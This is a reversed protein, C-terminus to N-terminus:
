RSEGKNVKEEIIRVIKEAAHGDGFLPPREDPWWRTAVAEIISAEDLDTVRNWGAQVTETWETEPRLTVCPVGHFYAEKQVGGSDTLIMFASRELAAMELFGQPELLTVNMPTTLGFEALRARTRPHLPLVIRRDLAAFIRLVSALRDADDVTYPRHLTALLYAGAELGLSALLTSPLAAHQLSADYMVDGVCHVGETVGERALQAVAGPNPCFLLTACHDALVRNHEEPMARNFSRLGAENHALPVGANVAALAAALTSDTDGHVLVLDPRLERIAAEFGLMMEGTRAAQSGRDVGLNVVPEPLGLEEFFVASLEADYHQGSHVILDEHGRATLARHM